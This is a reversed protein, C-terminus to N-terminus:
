PEEPTSYGRLRDATDPRLSGITVHFGPGDEGWGAPASRPRLPARLELGDVSTMPQRPSLGVPAGLWQMPEGCVACDVRVTGSYGIVPGDEQGTIRAVEVFAAFDPHECHTM